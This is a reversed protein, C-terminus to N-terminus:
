SDSIDPQSDPDWMLTHQHTILRMGEDTMAWTSVVDAIYEVGNRSATFRYVVAWSDRSLEVVLENSITSREFPGASQLADLWQRGTMVFGPLVVITREAICTRMRAVDGSTAIIAEYGLVDEANMHQADHSASNM